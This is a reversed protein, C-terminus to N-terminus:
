LIRARVAHGFGQRSLCVRLPIRVPCLALAPEQVLSVDGGGVCRYVVSLLNTRTSFIGRSPAPVWVWGLRRGYLAGIAFGKAALGTGGIALRRVDDRYEGM